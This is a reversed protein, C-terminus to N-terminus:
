FVEAGMRSLVIIACGYVSAYAVMLGVKETVVIGLMRIGSTGEPSQLHDLFLMARYHDPFPLMTNLHRFNSGLNTM